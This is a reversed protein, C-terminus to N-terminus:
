QPFAKALLDGAKSIRDVVDLSSKACLRNFLGDKNGDAVVIVYDCLPASAAAFKDSLEGRRAEGGVHLGIIKMGRKRAEAIVARARALEDEASIGAAGLGKASAGIALVLSKAGSPALASAQAKGDAKYPIGARDMLVKVAEVDTNQQGVSTLFAPRSAVPAKLGSGQAAAAATVLGILAAVLFRSLPSKM